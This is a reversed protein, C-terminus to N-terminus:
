KGGAGVARKVNDITFTGEPGFGLVQGNIIYTPTSNIGNDFIRSVQDLIAAREAPSRYIKEIASWNIDHDEAFNKLFTDFSKSKEFEKGITEQNEFVFNVYTWYKAPAVKQIARAGLAAFLSWEHHEYLPLDIRYYDINKLNKSVIPELKKHARGCTPCEFDSLEIITTKSKPNGRRVARALGIAEVLSKGPDTELNGRSGIVMFQQSADVWGHYAFPGYRTDKTMTVPRLGDQTPFGPPPVRMKQKLAESVFEEVRAELPRADASLRYITGLLTQRTSPSYLLYTQKGCNEDTSILTVKYVLFGRPGSPVDVREVTISSGPCKPMARVAYLKLTNLDAVQAYAGTTLFLLATLTLLKRM